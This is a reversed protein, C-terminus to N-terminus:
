CGSGAHDSRECFQHSASTRLLMVMAAQLKAASAQHSLCVAHKSHCVCPMSATVVVHCAQQSLCMAHMSHCGCPMSTCSAQQAAKMLRTRSLRCQTSAMLGTPPAKLARQRMNGERMLQQVMSQNRGQGSWARSDTLLWTSAGRSRAWGWMLGARALIHTCM